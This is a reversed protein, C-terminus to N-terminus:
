LAYPKGTATKEIGGNAGGIPAGLADHQSVITTESTTLDGTGVSRARHSVAVAVNPLLLWLRGVM